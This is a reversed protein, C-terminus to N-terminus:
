LITPGQLERVPEAEQEQGAEERVPEVEQEAE